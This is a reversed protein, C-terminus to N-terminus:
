NWYSVTNMHVAVLGVPLWPQKLGNVSRPGELRCFSAFHMHSVWRWCQAAATAVTFDSIQTLLQTPTGKQACSPIKDLGLLGLPM